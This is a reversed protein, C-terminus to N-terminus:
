NWGRRMPVVDRIPPAGEDVIAQSRAVVVSHRDHSARVVDDPPPGPPPPPPRARPSSHRRAADDGDGDDDPADLRRSPARYSAPPPTVVVHPSPPTALAALADGAAMTWDRALGFLLSVRVRGQGPVVIALDKTAARKSEPADVELTRLDCDKCKLSDADVYFLRPADTLVLAKLQTWLKQKRKFIPGHLLVREDRKIAPLKAYDLGELAARAAEALTADKKDRLPALLPKLSRPHRLCGLAACAARKVLPERDLRLADHLADVALDDEQLAGLARAAAARVVREYARCDAADAPGGALTGPKARLRAAVSRALDRKFPADVFGGFSQAAADRTSVDKDGLAGLLARGAAEDTGFPRLNFACAARVDPSPDRAVLRLLGRKLCAGGCATAGVVDAAAVRADAHDADDLAATLAADLERASGDYKGAQKRLARLAALRLAAPLAAVAGASACLADVVLKPCDDRDGLADAARGRDELDRADCLVSVLVATAKPGPVLLLRGCDGADGQVVDRWRRERSVSDLAAAAAKRVAREADGLRVALAAKLAAVEPGAFNQRRFVEGLTAAALSRVAPGGDVLCVGRLTKARGLTGLWAVARLRNDVDGDRTAVRDLAEAPDGLEGLCELAAGRNKADGDSALARELPAVCRHEEAHAGLSGLAAIVRLRTPAHADSLGVALEPVARLRALQALAAARVGVNGDRRAATRLADVAAGYWPGCRPVADFPLYQVDDVREPMAPAGCPLETAAALADAAPAAGGRSRRVCVDGLLRAASARLEANRDNFGRRCIGDLDDLRAMWHLAEGRIGADDDGSFVLERLESLAGNAGLADVARRRVATSSDFIAIRRLSDVARLEGAIAVLAERVSESRQAQMGKELPAALLAPRRAPLALLTGRLKAAVGLLVGEELSVDELAKMLSVALSFRRRLATADDRLVGTEFAGDEALAALVRRRVPPAEDDMAFHALDLSGLLAACRVAEVRVSVDEDYLPRVLALLAGVGAADDEVGAAAVSDGLLAVAGRRAAVAGSNSALLALTAARGEDLPRGPAPPPPAPPPARQRPPTAQPPPPPSSELASLVRGVEEDRDAPTLPPPPPASPVPPASPRPLSPRPAPAPGGGVPVALAIPFASISGDRDFRFSEVRAVDAFLPAEPIAVEATPIAPEPAPRGGPVVRRLLASLRGRRRQQQASNGGRAVRRVTVVEAELHAENVAVSARAAVDDRDAAAAVARRRALAGRFASQAVVTAQARRHEELRRRRQLSTVRRSACQVRLTAALVETARARVDRRRARADLAALRRRGESQILIAATTREREEGFPAVAEGEDMSRSSELFAPCSGRRLKTRKQTPPTSTQLPPPPPLPPPMEDESVRADELIAPPAAVVVPEPPPAIVVPSEEVVPEPAETVVPETTAEEAAPEAAAEAFVPEAAAEELIPELADAVAEAVVPAAEFIAAGAAPTAAAETAEAAPAPEDADDSPEDAPEPPAERAAACASPEAAPEEAASSRASLDADRPVAATDATSASGAASGGSERAEADGLLAARAEDTAPADIPPPEVTEVAASAEAWTETVINQKSRTKQTKPRQRPPPPPPRWNPPRVSM